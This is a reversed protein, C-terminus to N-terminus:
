QSTAPATSEVESTQTTNSRAVPTYHRPPMAAGGTQNVPTMTHPTPFSNRQSQQPFAPPPSFARNAAESFNV